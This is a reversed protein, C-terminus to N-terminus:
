VATSVSFGMGPTTLLKNNKDAKDRLAKKSVPFGKLEDLSQIEDSLLIKIFDWAQERYKTSGNIAFVENCKFSGGRQSEDPMNHVGFEGDLAVKSASLMMFEGIVQPSFMVRGRAATEILSSIGDSSMKETNM